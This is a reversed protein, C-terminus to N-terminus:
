YGQSNLSYNLGNDSISQTTLQEILLAILTLINYQALILSAEGSLSCNIGGARHARYGNDPGM